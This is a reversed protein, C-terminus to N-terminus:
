ENDPVTPLENGWKEGNNWVWIDEEETAAVLGGSEDLRAVLVHIESMNASGETAPINISLVEPGNRAVTMIYYKYFLFSLIKLL